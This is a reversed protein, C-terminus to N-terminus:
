LAAHMGALERMKEAQGGATVIQKDLGQLRNSLEALRGALHAVQRQKTANATLGASETQTSPYLSVRSSM